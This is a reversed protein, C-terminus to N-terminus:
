EWDEGGGPAAAASKRREREAWEDRLREKRAFGDWIEWAEEPTDAAVTSNRCGLDCSIHWKGYHRVPKCVTFGVGNPATRKTYPATGCLPCPEHPSSTAAPDSM